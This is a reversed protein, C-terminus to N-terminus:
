GERNIPPGEIAKAIEDAQAPISELLDKTAQEAVDGGAALAQHATTLRYLLNRVQKAQRGVLYQESAMREGMTLAETLRVACEDCIAVVETKRHQGHYITYKRPSSGDALTQVGCFLCPIHDLDAPRMEVRAM